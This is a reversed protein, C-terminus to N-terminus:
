SRRRAETPNPLDEDSRVIRVHDADFGFAIAGATVGARADNDPGGCHDAGIATLGLEGWSTPLLVVRPDTAGQRPVYAALTRQHGDLFGVYPSGQVFCPRTTENRVRISAYETGGAGGFTAAVLLDALRCPPANGLGSADLTHIFPSRTNPEVVTGIWPLTKVPAPALTPGPLKKASATTLPEVKRTSPGSPGHPGASGSGCASLCLGLTVIFARRMDAQRGLPACRQM